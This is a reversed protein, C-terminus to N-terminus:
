TLRSKFKILLVNKPDCSGFLEQTTPQTRYVFPEGILRDKINEKIKNFNIHSWDEGCFRPNKLGVGDRGINDWDDVMIFCENELMNYIHMIEEELPNQENGTPTTGSGRHATNKGRAWSSVGKFKSNEWDVSDDGSWHADLFFFVKENKHNLKDILESKLIHSSDGCYCSVNPTQKLSESVQEFIGKDLEITHVEKFHKALQSTTNGIFTGTEVAIPYKKFISLLYEDNM